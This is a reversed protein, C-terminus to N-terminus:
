RIGSLLTACTHHQVTPRKPEHFPATSGAGLKQRRCFLELKSDTFELTCVSRADWTTQVEERSAVEPPSVVALVTRSDSLNCTASPVRKDLGRLIATKDSRPVLVCGTISYACGKTSRKALNVVFIFPQSQNSSIKFRGLQRWGWRGGTLWESTVRPHPDRLPRRAAELFM